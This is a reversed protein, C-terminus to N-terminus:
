DEFSLIAEQETPFYEIVADLWVLDITDYIHDNANAFVFSKNAETFKGHWLAFLGIVGSNIYDLKELNFIVNLISEEKLLKELLEKLINQNSEDIDWELSIINLSNIIPSQNIKYSLNASM